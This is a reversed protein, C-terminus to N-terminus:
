EKYRIFLVSFGSSLAPSTNLMQLINRSSDIRTTISSTKDVVYYDEILVANAGKLKAKEVAKRQIGEVSVPLGINRQIYGKGIIDFPKTVSAKDVFVDVNKTQPHSSGVYKVQTGCSCFLILFLPTYLKRM